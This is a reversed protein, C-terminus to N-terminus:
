HLVSLFPPVQGFGGTCRTTSYTCTTATVGAFDGASGGFIGGQQQIQAVFAAARAQGSALDAEDLAVDDITSGRTLVFPAVDPITRGSLRNEPVADYPDVIGAAYGQQNILVLIAPVGVSFGKSSEFEFVL